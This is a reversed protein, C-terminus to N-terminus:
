AHQRARGHVLGARDVVRIFSNVMVRPLLPVTVIRHTTM